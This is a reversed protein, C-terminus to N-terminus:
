QEYEVVNVTHEFASTLLHIESTPVIEDVQKLENKYLKLEKIHHVYHLEDIYNVLNAMYLKPLEILTSDREFAWPAILRKLDEDLKNQYYPIDIYDPNLMVDVEVKIVDWNTNVVQLRNFPGTKTELYNQIEVLKAMTIAPQFNVSEMDLRYHPLLVLLTHGARAYVKMSTDLYYAHNLCKVKYIGSFQAITLQEFDWQNIARQKHRLRQSSRWFFHNDAELEQGGISPIDQHVDKIKATKPYVNEITGPAASVTAEQNNEDIVRVVKLGNTKIEKINAVLEYNQDCRAILWYMTDGEILTNNNTAAEPLSLQVLGSQLFNETTDIVKSEDIKEYRNNSLYYWSIKAELKSQGATEEAINFLLSVSQGPAIDTLGICLEGAFYQFENKSYDPLFTLGTTPYVILSGLPYLHEISNTPQSIPNIRNYSGFRERLALQQRQKQIFPVKLSKMLLAAPFLHEKYKDDTEKEYINESLEAEMKVLKALLIIPIKSDDSTILDALLKVLIGPNEKDIEIPEFKTQDQKSQDQGKVVNGTKTGNISVEFDNRINEAWHITLNVTSAYELFPHTISFSSGALSQTGFAIFSESSSSTATATKVSGPEFQHKELKVEVKEVQESFLYEYLSVFYDDDPKERSPSILRIRANIGTKVAKTLDKAVVAWIRLVKEENEISEIDLIEETDDELLLKIEFKEKFINFVDTKSEDAQHLSTAYTFEFGIKTDKKSVISILTSELGIGTWAEAVDNFPLWANNVQWQPNAADEAGFVSKPQDNKFIRVTSKIKEIKANNLVLEQTAKYFLPKNESNKGAKFLSGKEIFHEKINKALDISVFATDPFAAQRKLQLVDEFVFKTNQQILQNYRQDFLMKLKCFAILLANHPIHDSKTDVLDALKTVAWRSFTTHIQMLGKFLVSLYKNAVKIKEHKTAYLDLLPTGALDSPNFFSKLTLISAQSAPEFQIENFDTVGVKNIKSKFLTFYEKSLQEFQVFVQTSTNNKLIAVIAEQNRDDITQAISKYFSFLYQIIQIRQYCVIELEKQSLYSDSNFHNAQELESFFHNLEDTRITLFQAFRFVSGQKLVDFWSKSNIGLDDFFNIDKSIELLFNFYDQLENTQLAYSQDLLLPNNMAVTGKSLPYNQIKSILKAM